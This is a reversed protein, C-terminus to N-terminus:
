VYLQARSYATEKYGLMDLSTLGVRYGAATLREAMEIKGSRPINAHEVLVLQPALAVLDITRLIELDYGEADIKLVDVPQGKTSRLLTEFSITPVQREVIKSELDPHWRRAQLLVDRSFSSHLSMSMSNATSMDVSYITSVSDAKGIAAEVLTVDPYRTYNDKLRAFAEPIPEVMIGRWGFDRIFPFIPDHTVGDNAGIGIFFPRPTTLM